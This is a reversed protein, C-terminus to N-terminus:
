HNEALYSSLFHTLRLAQLGSSEWVWCNRHVSVQEVAGHEHIGKHAHLEDCSIRMVAPDANSVM